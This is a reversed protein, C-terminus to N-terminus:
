TDYEGFPFFANKFEEAARKAEEYAERKGVVEGATWDTRGTFPYCLEMLVGDTLKGVYVDAEHSCTCGNVSKWVWVKWVLHYESSHRYVRLERINPFLGPLLKQVKALLGGDKKCVQEGVLPAFVGLLLRYTDGALGNATNVAEVKAALKDERSSM